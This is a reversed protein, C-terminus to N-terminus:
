SLLKEVENFWYLQNFPRDATGKGASAIRSEMCGKFTVFAKQDKGFFSDNDSRSFHPVLAGMAATTCHLSMSFSVGSSATVSFPLHSAWM